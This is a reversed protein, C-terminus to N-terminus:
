ELGLALACDASALADARTHALAIDYTWPMFGHCHGSADKFAPSIAPAEVDWQVVLPLM